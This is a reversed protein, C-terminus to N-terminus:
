GLSSLLTRFIDDAVTIVKASAQYAQQFRLLNSAEEDLNVGSLSDRNQKAQDNLTIQAQLDVESSHTRTGVDAVMLGYGRQFDASGNQLTKKAQIDSLILGNRNDDQPSQNNALIFSDNNAPTGSITFSINTYPAGLSLTTGSDTTPNYAIPGAPVAPAAAAPTTTVAFSNAVNNFTLVVEVPAGGADTLPINTLAGTPTKPPVFGIEGTGTNTGVGFADTAKRAVIPSALAIDLVDNINVAMSRSLNHTPQALFKDGNAPAGAGLNIQIGENNLSTNLNTLAAALGVAVPITAPNTGTFVTNDSLRTLTFTNGGGTSYELEYDSLTLESTDGTDSIAITYSATGTNNSSQITNQSSTIDTFFNGGNQYNGAADQQLTMGLAHQQNMEVTISAAIRGLANFSPELVQNKFDLLGQMEGGKIQDTVQVSTNNNSLFVEKDQPSFESDRISMSFATSNLVLAQGSGIFINAAGNSQYVVNVDVLESIEKILNERRDLSDNPLNGNGAGIQVSIQANLEAISAARATIEAAVDELNSNTQDNLDIFRDQLLGFRDVLTNASTLLVSRAPVSSPFDNAEQLANYFSELTPTLGADPNALINDVQRALENFREFKGLQSNSSRIQEELFEDYFRRTTDIKVGTGVYGAGSFNPLTTSLETRQRAFGATNVNSINHGTTAIQQQASLLGSTGIGFIGGGM